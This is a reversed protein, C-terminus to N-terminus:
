AIPQNPRADSKEVLALPASFEVIVIFAPWGTDDSRRIQSQKQKM